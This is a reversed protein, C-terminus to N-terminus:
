CKYRGTKLHTEDRSSVECLLFCLCHAVKFCSQIVLNDLTRSTKTAFLVASCSLNCASDQRCVDGNEYYYKMQKSSELMILQETTQTHGCSSEDAKTIITFSIRFHLVVICVLINRKLPNSECMDCAHEKSCANSSM